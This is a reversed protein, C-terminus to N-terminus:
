RPLRCHLRRRLIAGSNRRLIACSNRRSNRRFNRPARLRAGLLLLRRPLGDPLPHLDARHVARGALLVLLRRAAHVGLRRDHRRHLVGQRVLLRPPPLVLGEVAHVHPVGDDRLLVDDLVLDPLGGLEGQLVRGPVAPVLVLVVPLDLRREPGRVRRRDHERVHRHRRHRGVRRLRHDPQRLATHDLRDREARDPHLLDGAGIEPARQVQVHVGQLVRRVGDRRRVLRPLLRPRRDSRLHPRGHTTRSDDTSLDLPRTCRNARRRRRRHSCSSSKASETCAGVCTTPSTPVRSLRCRSVM